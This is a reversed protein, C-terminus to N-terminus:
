RDGLVGGPTTPPPIPPADGAAAAESAHRRFTSVAPRHASPAQAGSADPLAAETASQGEFSLLLEDLCFAATEILTRAAAINNMCLSALLQQRETV